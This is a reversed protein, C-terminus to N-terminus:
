WDNTKAKVAKDLVQKVKDAFAKEQRVALEVLAARRANQGTPLDIKEDAPQIYIVSKGTGWVQDVLPLYVVGDIRSAAGAQGPARLFAPMVGIPLDPHEIFIEGRELDPLHEAILNLQRRVLVVVKSFSTIASVDMAKRIQDPESLTQCVVVKNIKGELEWNWIGPRQKKATLWDTSFPANEFVTGPRNFLPRGNVWLYLHGYEPAARFLSAKGFGTMVEGAPQDQAEQFVYGGVQGTLPFGSIPFGAPSLSPSLLLILVVLVLGLTKRM